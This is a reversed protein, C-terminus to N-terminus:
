SKVKKILEKARQVSNFQSFGNEELRDVLLEVMKILEQKESEIKDFDDTTKILPFYTKGVKGYLKGQYEM